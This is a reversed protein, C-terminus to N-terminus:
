KTLTLFHMAFTYAVYIKGNYDWTIDKIEDNRVGLLEEVKTEKIGKNRDCEVIFAGDSYKGDVNKSILVFNTGNTEFFLYNGFPIGTEIRSAKGGQMDAEYLYFSMRTKNNEDVSSAETLFYLKDDNVTVNRILYGEIDEINISSKAFYLYKEDPVSLVSKIRGDEMKVPAVSEGPELDYVINEESGTKNSTEGNGTKKGGCGSIIILMLCIIIALVINLKVKM